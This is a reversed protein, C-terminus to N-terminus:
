QNGGSPVLHISSEYTQTVSLAIPQPAGIYEM